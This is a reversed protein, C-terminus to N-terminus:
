VLIWWAVFTLYLPSPLQPLQEHPPCIFAQTERPPLFLVSELLTQANKVSNFYNDEIVLTM